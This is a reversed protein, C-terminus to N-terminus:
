LIDGIPTHKIISFIHIPNDSQFSQYQALPYAQAVNIVQIQFILENKKAWLYLEAVTDLTVASIVLRGCLNLRQWCNDLITAMNGRSGGIFIADPNPLENLGLPAKEKIVKINDTSHQHINHLLGAYCEPNCEIAFVQGKICFKAAEISVSGSAAGIDWVVEQPKLKLQAIVLNRIPQKTILGKKVMRKSFDEDEAFQGFGGWVDTSQRKAILVNLGNFIQSTNALKDVTFTTTKEELGALDECVILEWNSQNFKLLHQAIVQPTKIKDTLLAYLDAHQMQSVLGVLDRGHCSLHQAEAWPLGLKAFALQPSSLAPLFRLQSQEFHRLLTTGVGFFLPDGSALVAVSGEEGEDIVDSLWDSFGLSMDLFKGQFQPFWTLHRPHGAVVRANTVANVIKSSLSLCGDENLGVITINNM